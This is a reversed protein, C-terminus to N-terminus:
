WIMTLKFTMTAPRVSTAFDSYGIYFAVSGPMYDMTISESWFNNERDAIAWTDPLPRLVEKDTGPNAVLYGTVIGEKYIFESLEPVEFVYQYYSNPANEGGMLVWEQERVTYYIHKWRTEAGTDGPPGMPGVPGECSLFGAVALLIFLIKRM